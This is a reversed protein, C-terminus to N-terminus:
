GALYHPSTSSSGYGGNLVHIKCREGLLAGGLHKSVLVEVESKHGLVGWHYGYPQYIWARTNTGPPFELLIRVFEVRFFNGRNDEYPDTKFDIKLDIPQPLKVNITGVYAGRLEDYQREFIPLQQRLTKSACGVGKVIEGDLIMVALPNM